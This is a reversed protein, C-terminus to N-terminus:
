AAVLRGILSWTNSSRRIASAAAGSGNLVNTDSAHLSVSFGDGTVTVNGAGTQLFNVMPALGSVTWAATAEAGITLTIPSASTSIILKGADSPTIAGSATVVRYPTGALFVNGGAAQSVWASGSYAYVIPVGTGDLEDLVRVSMGADPALFTWVGASTLWWALNNAKGSWAGTPSPGVIYMAGNAPSGPPTSLDKDVVRPMVLQDLASFTTNANVQNGASNALLELFLKSTQAM